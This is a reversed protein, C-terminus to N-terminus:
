IIRYMVKRGTPGDAGIGDASLTLSGVAATGAVSLEATGGTGTGDASVLLNGGFLSGGADVTLRAVSGAGTTGNRGFLSLGGSAGDFLVTENSQVNISVGAGGTLSATRAFQTTQGAADPSVTVDGSARATLASTFTATGISLNVAPGTPNSAGASSATANGASLVIAGNNTTSAGILSYGIQGGLLMTIASNKALAAVVINNTSGVTPSPGTTTGTHVIPNPASSGTTFTIDFLGANIVVNAAEAGILATSGANDIRGGQIIQPAIMAVYIGGTTPADSNVTIQAGPQITISATPNPAQGFRIENGPGLLGGTTDIPSTSLVLSGVDFRSSANLIFGGPTYFWISGGPIEGLGAIFSRSQVVGDLAIPRSPDSPVIRNLVTYATGAGGSNIFELRNNIPLISIPGTGNADTPTWDIISTASGVTVRDTLGGQPNAEGITYGVTGINTSPVAQFGRQAAAPSAITAAAIAASALLRARRAAPSRNAIM